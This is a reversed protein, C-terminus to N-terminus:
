RTAPRRGPWAHALLTLGLCAALSLTWPGHLLRPPLWTALAQWWDAGHWVGLVIATTVLVTLLGTGALRELGERASRGSGVLRVVSEAFDAPLPDPLPKRLARAVRRYDSARPDHEDALGLREARLAREQAQWEDTPVDHDDRHIPTNM